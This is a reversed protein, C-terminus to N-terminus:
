ATAKRKGSLIAGVGFADLAHPHEDDLPIVHAERDSPWTLEWQKM